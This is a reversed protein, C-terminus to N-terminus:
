FHSLGAKDDVILTSFRESLEDQEISSAVPSLPQTIALGSATLLAEIREIRTSMELLNGHRTINACLVYELINPWWVQETEGAAEKASANDRM